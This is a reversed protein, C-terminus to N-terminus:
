ALGARRVMTLAAMALAFAFLLRPARLNAVPAGLQAGLPACAMIMPAIIAVAALNVDGLGFPPAPVEAVVGLVAYLLVAPAAIVLAAGTATADAATRAAGSFRYLPGAFAGGGFGAMATAAGAGLCAAGFAPRGLHARRGKPDGEAFLILLAAAFAAVGIVASLGVPPTVAAVGAGIAAGLGLWPGSRRLLALDITRYHLRGRLGILSVVAVVGLSTGVAAHAAREGYGLGQFVFYLAPALAAGGGAGILGAALGVGAGVVLFFGLLMGTEALEAGM